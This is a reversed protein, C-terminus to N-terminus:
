AGGEGGDHDGPGVDGDAGEGADKKASDEGDAAATPGATSSATPDSSAGAGRGPGDETVAGDHLSVVREVVDRYTPNHTVLIITRGEAV